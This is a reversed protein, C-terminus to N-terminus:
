RREVSYRVVDLIKGDSNRAVITYTNLGMRFNNFQDRLYYHWETSGPEYVTLTFGNVSIAATSPDTQGEILVEKASTVVYPSNPSPSQITLSGPKLYENSEEPVDEGEEGGESPPLTLPQAKWIITILSPESENGARDIAVVEYTNEGIRVNGIDPNVLYKWEPSGQRLKQLRYGNVIIGTADEPVKGIIEFEDDNVLAEGEENKHPFTILPAEPPKRDHRVTLNKTSIELGDRDEAQIEISFEEQEPLALEKQFAGDALDARYGNVRVVTVRSDATGEVLVADGEIFAGDEPATILLPDGELVETPVEESDGLAVSPESQRVSAALYFLSSFVQPDLVSRLAYVDGGTNLLETVKEPEARLEQGEGVWVTPARRSHALKAEVGPGSTTFVVLTYPSIIAKTGPPITHIYEPTSIATQVVPNDSTEIWLQGSELHLSILSSQEGQLVDDLEVTGGGDIVATSGDFFALRAYSGPQVDVQDGDYLRLGSEARQAAGQGSITVDINGRGESTLTTAVRAGSQNPVAFGMLARGVFFVVIVLVFIAIPKGWSSSEPSSHSVTQHGHRRRRRSQVM